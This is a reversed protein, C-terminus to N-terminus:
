EAQLARLCAETIAAVHRSLPGSLREYIAFTAPQLVIGLAIATALDANKIRLERSKVAGAVVNHLVDVPSNPSKPLTPLAQHQVLLLFRFMTPDTDFLRCIDAIMVKLKAHFGSQRQQLENLRRGYAFYNVEFLDSVLEEKSAYHRYITGEAIGAGGALDRITAETIGKEVFLRLAATQIKAKTTNASKVPGVLLNILSRESM